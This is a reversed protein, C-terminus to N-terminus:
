SKPVLYQEAFNKGICEGLTRGWKSANEDNITAPVNPYIEKQCKTSIDPILTICKEYSIKLDDFRKKLDADGLFGKCVVDPLLPSMQSLWADKPMDTSAKTDTSPTTTTTTTSTGTTGTSDTPTTTPTGTTTTTTAGQTPTTTSTSTAPEEAFGIMPIFASSLAISTAIILNRSM